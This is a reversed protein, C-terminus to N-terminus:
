LLTIKERHKTLPLKCSAIVGEPLNTFAEQPEASAHHKTFTGQQQQGFLGQLTRVMVTLSPAHATSASLVCHLSAAAAAAALLLRCAHEDCFM